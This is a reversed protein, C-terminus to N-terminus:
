ILIHFQPSASQSSRSGFEEGSNIAIYTGQLMTAETNNEPSGLSLIYV